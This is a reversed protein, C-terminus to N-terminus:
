KGTYIEYMKTSTNILDKTWKFFHGIEKNIKSLNKHINANCTQKKKIM